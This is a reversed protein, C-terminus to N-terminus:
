EVLFALEKHWKSVDPELRIATIGSWLSCAFREGDMKWEHGNAKAWELLNSTM